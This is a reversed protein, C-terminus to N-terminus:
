ERAASFDKRVPLNFTGNREGMFGLLHFFISSYDFKEGTPIM